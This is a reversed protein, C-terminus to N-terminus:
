KAVLEKKDVDVRYEKLLKPNADLDAFLQKQPHDPEFDSAIVNGAEDLIDRVKIWNCVIRDNEEETGYWMRLHDATHIRGDIKGVINGTQKNYFIIM